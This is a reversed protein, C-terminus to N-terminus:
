QVLTKSKTGHSPPQHLYKYHSKPVHNPPRRTATTGSLSSLSEPDHQVGYTTWMITRSRIGM